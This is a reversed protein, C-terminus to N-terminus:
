FKNSIRLSKEDMLILTEEDVNLFPMRTEQFYLLFTMISFIIKKIIVNTDASYM